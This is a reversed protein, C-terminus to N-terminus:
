KSRNVIAFCTASLPLCSGFSSVMVVFEQHTIIVIAILSVHSVIGTQTCNLWKYLFPAGVASVWGICRQRACDVVFRARGLQCFYPPNM